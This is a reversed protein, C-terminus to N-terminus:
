GYCEKCPNGCIAVDLDRVETKRLELAVLDVGTLTSDIGNLDLKRGDV